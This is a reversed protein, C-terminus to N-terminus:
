ILIKADTERSCQTETTFKYSNANTHWLDQLILSLSLRKMQTLLWIAGAKVLSSPLIAVYTILLM